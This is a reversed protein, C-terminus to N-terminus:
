KPDSSSTDRSAQCNPSDAEVDKYREGKNPANESNLLHEIMTTIRKAMSDKGALNLHQGHRTYYNREKVVDIIKVEKFREVEKHLKRNFVEV